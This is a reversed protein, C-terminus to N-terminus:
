VWPTMMDPWTETLVATKGLTDVAREAASGDEEGWDEEGWDVDGWDVDVGVGLRAGAVVACVGKRLGWIVISGESPIVTM